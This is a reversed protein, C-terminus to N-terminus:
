EEFANLGNIHKIWKTFNLDESTFNKQFEITNMVILDDYFLVGILLSHYFNKLLSLGTVNSLFSSKEHLSVAQIHNGKDGPRYNLILKIKFPGHIEIMSISGAYCTWDAKFNVLGLFKFIKHSITRPNDNLKGELRYHVTHDDVKTLSFDKTIDLGHVALWHPLDVSNSLMIHPHCRVFRQNMPKVKYYSGNPFDPVEFYPTDGYFMYILGHKEICPWSKVKAKKPIEEKYPIERCKGEDNYTWFHFPCRICDGVVEGSGLMAGMHACRSDLIAVKASEGRFVVRKKGFITITKAKGKKLNKSKMVPYWSSITKNFNGFLM